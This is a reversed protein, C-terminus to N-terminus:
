QITVKTVIVGHGAACLTQQQFDAILADTLTIEFVKEELRTTSDNDEIGEATFFCGDSQWTWWASMLKFNNYDTVNPDRKAYVRVVQGAKAQSWDYGNDIARATWDGNDMTGVGLEGKFLVTELSIHEVLEVKNLIFWAGCIVLGGNANMEDLMEQTLTLTYSTADDAMAINGDGDAGPLAKTGPLAAWSGNGFRIQCGYEKAPDVAFGIVLDTGPEVQSWDYGGWALAQFGSAWGGAEHIGSWIITHKETNPVVSLPYEVSGNSSILKLVSKTGANMTINIFLKGANDIYKTTEGDIQVETLKDLNEAEVTLLDGAKLDNDTLITADPIYCFEPKSIQLEPADVTTGNKLKLVPKGSEADLPVSLTLTAGDASTEVEKAESAGFAVSKVLDLDQGSIILQGGAPAPSSSYATVVPKVLTYAVTVTKGNAMTLQIDGEQAAEPITVALASETPQVETIADAHPFTVSTVVDLDQGSITLVQGNKAPAPAASLSSPAVTLLSGVPVLVDSKTVLCIEGEPAQAPLGFTITKGDESVNFSTVEYGAIDIAKVLAFDQGSITIKEGKKATIQGQADAENRGALKAVTPTGVILAQQTEIINYTVDDAVNDKTLDVDYLALKGTKAREPVEVQIEYRDHKVFKSGTILVGDTFEIMHILNLYDGKITIVDGPMCEAPMITDVVIPETYTLESKTYLIAGSKTVLKVLGPQSGDKPVTVRIESPIGAQVVEYNTIPECGPIYISEIFDLNSGLFRLTGGRMVPNPGFVNLYTGKRYQDTALDDDSCATLSLGSLAIVFLTIISYIYKKM